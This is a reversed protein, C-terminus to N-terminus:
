GSVGAGRLVSSRLIEFRVEPYLKESSDTIMEWSDLHKRKNGLFAESFPNTSCKRFM